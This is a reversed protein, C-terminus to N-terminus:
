REQGRNGEKKINNKLAREKISIKYKSNSIIDLTEVKLPISCPLLAFKGHAFFIINSSL